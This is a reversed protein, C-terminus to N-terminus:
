RFPHDVGTSGAAIGSEELRAAEAVDANGGTSDGKHIKALGRGRYASDSIPNLRIAEDYDTIAHNYDGRRHYLRARQTYVEALDPGQLRGLGIELTCAAISDDSGFVMRCKEAYTPKEADTLRSLWVGASGLFLLAFVFLVVGFLWPQRAKRLEPVRDNERSIGTRTASLEDEARRLAEAEQKRRREDPSEWPKHLAKVIDECFRAIQKGVEPSAVDNLRIKTWDAYQRVHIIKLVNDRSRQDEKALAPVRIYLIPFILDDRLLVSERDLFAEFEMRCYSSNVVSPTIIPIFFASEAIAKKIEGEWLTGHPIAETDQWLRLDRGLQAHLEGRIRKRLLSLAKELHEDDSRSYSFFGVLEPLEALSSM